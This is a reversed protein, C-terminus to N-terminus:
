NGGGGGGPGRGGGMRQRRREEMEQFKKFQEDTLQAKIRANRAENVERMKVMKAERDMSQDMFIERQKPMFEEWIAKISDVQKDSLNLSDKMTKIMAEANQGRGGGGPPQANAAGILLCAFLAFFIKKM